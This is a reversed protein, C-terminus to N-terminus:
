DVLILLFFHGGEVGAETGIIHVGAELGREHLV